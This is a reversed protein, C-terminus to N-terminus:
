GEGRRVMFANGLADVLELAEALDRVATFLKSEDWAGTGLDSINFRNDGVFDFVLHEGKAVSRFAGGHALDIVRAMVLPNFLARAETQDTSKLRYADTFEKAALDVPQMDSDGFLGLWSLKRSRLETVGSLRIPADLVIILHYKDPAEDVPEVWEFMDFKIGARRGHFGDEIREMQSNAIAEKQAASGIVIVDQMLLKADKAVAVATEMGTEQDIRGIMERVEPPAWSQRGVWGLGYPLKGPVAVYELDLPGVIERWAASQVHFREGARVLFAFLAPRNIWMMLAMSGFFLFPFAIFQLVTGWWVDPLIGSVVGFALVFVFMGILGWRNFRKKLQDGGAEETPMQALIPRVNENIRAGVGAFGDIKEIDDWDGVM